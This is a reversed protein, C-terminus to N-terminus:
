QETMYLVHVDVQRQRICIVPQQFEFYTLQNYNIPHHIRAFKLIYFENLPIM